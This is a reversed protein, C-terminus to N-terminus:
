KTPPKKAAPKKAAPKAKVLKANIPKGGGNNSSAKAVERVLNDLAAKNKEIYEKPIVSEGKVLKAVGPVANRVIGFAPDNPNVYRLIVPVLGALLANALEVPDTMGALYLALGAALVSRAYSAIAAKVKTNM